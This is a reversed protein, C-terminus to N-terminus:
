ARLQSVVLQAQYSKLSPRAAAFRRNRRDAQALYPFLSLLEGRQAMDMGALSLDGPQFSETWCGDSKVLEHRDFMLHIYRLGQPPIARRVGALGLIDQAAVLVEDEGFLLQVQASGLAVRHQPSVMMDRKPLGTGLAGASIRIPQLAPAARLDSCSLTKSGIWRVPQVGSDCTQVLDGIRVHEARKQGQEMKIRTGPTFCPTYNIHEIESFTLTAGDLWTVTGHEAGLMDITAPGTINLTDGGTEGAEGGTITANGTAMSTATVDFKDDGDEGLATDGVGLTFFDDGAGGSLSDAGAGGDLTDSGAGGILTDDGAGGDASDDGGGLDVNDDGTSGTLTDDQESGVVTEIETFSATNAGSTVVGSETDGAGNQSLDIHAGSTLNSLDLTDADSGSTATEGGVITDDGFGDRIIFTDADAGGSLSDDGSDADLTDDGDDGYLVDDGLAGALSDDGTGGYLTDSGNSATGGGYLTDNGAGGYVLDHGISHGVYDDGDGALVTDNGSGAYISDAGEGGYLSDNGGSGQLVDDGLGGILTDDGSGGNITDDGGAGDVNLDTTIGLATVYDGEDTLGLREIESFAITDSGLVMNGMEDGTYTVSVSM